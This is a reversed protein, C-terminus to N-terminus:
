TGIDFSLEPFQAGDPAENLLIEVLPLTSPLVDPSKLEEAPLWILGPNDPQVDAVEALLLQFMVYSETDKGRYLTVSGSSRYRFTATIGAHAALYSGATDCIGAAPEPDCSIFGIKGITPQRDRKELLWGRAPDHVALFLVNRPQIDWRVSFTSPDFRDAYARGRETLEYGEEACKQVLGERVLQKLHYVFQNPEIHKPRLQHYRQVRNEILLKLIHRQIHHRQGTM